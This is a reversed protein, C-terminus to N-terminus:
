ESVSERGAALGEEYRQQFCGPLLDDKPIFLAASEVRHALDSHIGGTEEARAQVVGVLYGLQVAPEGLPERRARANLETAADVMSKGVESIAGPQQETTLCDGLSTGDLTVEGPASELAEVYADADQLCGAATVAEDDESGCGALTLGLIAASMVLGSRM